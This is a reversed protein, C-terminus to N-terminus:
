TGHASLELAQTEGSDVKDLEVRLLRKGEEGLKMADKNVRGAGTSACEGAVRFNAPAEFGVLERLKMVELGCNKGGRELGEGGASAEDVGCARELGFFVFVYDGLDSLSMGMDSGRRGAFCRFCQGGMETGAYFRRRQKVNSAM